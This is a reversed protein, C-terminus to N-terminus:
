VSKTKVVNVHVNVHLSFDFVMCEIPILIKTQYKEFCTYFNSSFFFIKSEMLLNFRTPKTIGHWRKEIENQKTGNLITDHRKMEIQFQNLAVFIRFLCSFLWLFIFQDPSVIVSPAASEVSIPRFLVTWSHTHSLQARSLASNPLTKTSVNSKLM